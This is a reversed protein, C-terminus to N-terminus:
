VIDIPLLGEESYGIIILSGDESYVKWRSPNFTLPDEYKNPNLQLAAPVVLLIWGKPITYGAIFCHVCNM